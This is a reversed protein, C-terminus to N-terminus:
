KWTDLRVSVEERHQRKPVSPHDHGLRGGDIANWTGRSCEAEATSLARTAQTRTWHNVVTGNIIMMGGSMSKREPGSAWNSDVHVDM